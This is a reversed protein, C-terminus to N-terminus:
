GDYRRRAGCCPFPSITSSWQKRGVATCDMWGLVVPDIFSFVNNLTKDSIEAVFNMALLPFKFSSLYFIM